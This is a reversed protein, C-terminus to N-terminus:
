LLKQIPRLPYLRSIQECFAHYRLNNGQDLSLKSVLAFYFWLLATGLPHAGDGDPKCLHWSNVNRYQLFGVVPDDNVLFDLNGAVIAGQDLLLIYDVFPGGKDRLTTGLKKLDAEKCEGCVVFTLPVEQVPTGPAGGSVVIENRMEHWSKLSKQVQGIGASLDAASNKVQGMVSVSTHPIYHQDQPAPDLRFAEKDEYVLVDIEPSCRSNAGYFYGSAVKNTSPLSEALLQRFRTELPGGSAKINGAKHAARGEEVSLIMDDAKRGFQAPLDLEGM